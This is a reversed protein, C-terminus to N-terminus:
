GTVPEYTAAFIDPKCPYVEGQVGCIIWDDPSALMSGELTPLYVGDPTPVVGGLEYVSALWTPLADWDTAFARLAERCPVAEVEVPRKRFRM